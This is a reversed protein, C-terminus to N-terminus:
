SILHILIFPWSEAIATNDKEWQKMKKLFRSLKASNVNEFVKFKMEELRDVIEEFSPRDDPKTAWCDTILKQVAPVIFDPIEPREKDIVVKHTIQYRTLSKQFAPQGTVLEFLIVGFSFVDSAPLCCKEYCEPAVFYSDVSPWQDIENLHIPNDSSASHGFDAIQVKWDWDLLINEPKLDRHIVGHSHVFRMALAIGVIVKTMKNADNLPFKAPPLHDALSGNGAFQTVMASNNDGINSIHERLELILPHKLTKLIAVERRILEACDPNKSTKVAIFEGKSDLSLTVTSSDGRGLEDPILEAASSAPIDTPKRLREFSTLFRRADDDLPEPNALFDRFINALCDVSPSHSVADSSRDSGEWELRGLLRFCRGYNVKAEFHGRDAAFKYYEAALEINQEVGHGHELCFGLNNAGDPHGQLAARLYYRSALWVNKDVGIGRELCIGFSNEAAANKREASLRYYKAARDFDQEIGKGYELCRGFNYM